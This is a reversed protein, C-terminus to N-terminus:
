FRGNASQSGSNTSNITNDNISNDNGQITFTVCVGCSTLNRFTSNGGSEVIQAAASDLEHMQANQIFLVGPTQATMTGWGHTADGASAATASAALLAFVLALRRLDFIVM